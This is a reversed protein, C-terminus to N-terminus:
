LQVVVGIVGSVSTVLGSPSVAILAAISRICGLPLVLTGSPMAQPQRVTDLVSGNVSPRGSVSRPLSLTTMTSVSPSFV